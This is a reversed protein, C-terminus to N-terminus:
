KATINTFTDAVEIAAGPDGNVLPYTLSDVYMVLTATTISDYSTLHDLNILM